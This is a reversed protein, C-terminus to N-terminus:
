KKLAHRKEYYDVGGLIKSRGPPDDGYPSKGAWTEWEPRHLGSAEQCWGAIRLLGERSLGVARCRAGYNFNSYDLSVTPVTAGLGVQFFATVGLADPRQLYIQEKSLTSHQVELHDDDRWRLQVRPRGAFVAILVKEESKRLIVQTAFDVTAGCKRVSVSAVHSRSPSCAKQLLSDGCTGAEIRNGDPQVLFLTDGHTSPELTGIWTGNDATIRVTQPGSAHAYSGFVVALGIVACGQRCQKLGTM